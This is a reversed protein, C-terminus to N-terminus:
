NLSGSGEAAASNSGKSHQADFSGSGAVSHGGATVAQDTSGMLGASSGPKAHPTPVDQAGKAPASKSPTAAATAPASKAVNTMATANTMASAGVGSADKTAAAEANASVDSGSQIASRGSQIASKAANDAKDDVKRAANTVPKTKVSRLSEDMQGQAAFSGAGGISRGGFGSLNGNLGGGLSGAGGVLGAYAPSTLALVVAASVGAFIQKTNM